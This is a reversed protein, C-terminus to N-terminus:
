PNADELRSFPEPHLDQMRAPCGRIHAVKGRFVTKRTEARAQVSELNRLIGRDPHRALDGAPGPQILDFWPRSFSSVPPARWRLWLPM